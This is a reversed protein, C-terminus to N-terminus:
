GPRHLSVATVVFPKQHTPLIKTQELEEAQLPLGGLTLGDERTGARRTGARFIDLWERVTTGALQSNQAVDMGSATADAVLIIKFKKKQSAAM